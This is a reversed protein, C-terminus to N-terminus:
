DFRSAKMPVESEYWNPHYTGHDFTAISPITMGGKILIRLEGRFQTSSWGRNYPFLPLKSWPVYAYWLIPPSCVYQPHPPSCYHFSASLQFYLSSGHTKKQDDFFDYISVVFFWHNQYQGLM